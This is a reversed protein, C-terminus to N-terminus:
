PLGLNRLFLLTVQNDQPFQFALGDQLALGGLLWPLVLVLCVQPVLFVRSELLFLCNQPFHLFQVGQAELDGQIELFLHAQHAELLDLLTQVVQLLLAGLSNCVLVWPHGLVELILHISLVVLDFLHHPALPLGQCGLSPCTLLEQLVQVVLFELDGLHSPVVQGFLIDPFKLIGLAVLCSLLPQSSPSDQFWQDELTEQSVLTVPASLCGQFGLLLPSFLVGPFWLHFLLSPFQQAKGFEM